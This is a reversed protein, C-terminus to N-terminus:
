PPGPVTLVDAEASMNGTMTQVRIRTTGMQAGTFRGDPTMSGPGSVISWYFGPKGRIDAILDSLDSHRMKAHFRTPVGAQASYTGQVFQIDLAFTPAIESGVDVTGLLDALVDVQVSERRGLLRMEEVPPPFTSPQAEYAYFDFFYTGPQLLQLEVVLQEHLDSPLSYRIAEGQRRWAICRVWSPIPNDSLNDHPWRAPDAEAFHMALNVTTSSQPSVGACGVILAAAGFALLARRMSPM